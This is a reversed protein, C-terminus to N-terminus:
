WHGTFVFPSWFYPHANDKLLETQAIKLAKAPNEGKLFESYFRRMLDLTSKDNVTWLSMVLASAGASLFGRTLGFLEEGSVIKNLGTECASLVVLKDRLNLERADKVTLNENFLNLASFDPNDLRFKGHCALHLVGAKELNKRLNELTAAENKLKVSDNFLGGLMEIEADILPANQDAVGVLLASEPPSIKRSLCSELVSLSPAYVIECEEILFKEGDHLVQFPLYHLFRTPVIVLRKARCFKELPRILADYIIQSHRLLRETALRQNEASLKELFRGTKIQFLFQEIELRLTKLDVPFRFVEFDDGTIVFASLRDDFDAFEIVTTDPLINQLTKLDFNRIEGVASADENIRGRRELEALKQERTAAMKRLESVDRRAELGSATRRNIRSYFWNLEERLKATEPNQASNKATGNMADLLSRSRSREHWSLAESLNNEALRIKILENFPFLKDSFFATRFEEASLASRSNEVLKVAELFFKEDGSIKGLGVLCLYEIQRSQGAAAELSRRFIEEAKESKGRKLWIEGLLWRALLEHRKNGGEIFAQLASEAENEAKALDNNRFYFQAKSLRAVAASILNGEAEFLKEARDLLNAALAADELLFLAKAHSLLSRALEARMGLEAFKAETKEYFAVSEPLLNLELYIDAIELECNASQHPMKLLDYKQRSREMFKLALDLRGQFLYLNSMGTEIEAETVTLDNEAARNLAIEYVTEAERFNNQLAQVFAQCNEVMALQRQDGIQEFHRHASALYPESERYFDRRWYLNGINHEIKGVSYLDNEKRFVDRARLGCAVAEDYRGLLALAYLKSIQTTAASHTKESDKFSKESKDLWVLCDKLRGNVLNEIARTWQLYATIEPNGTLDSLERLIEVIISVKQPENTWIEYCIQQFCEALEVGALQSHEAFLHAREDSTSEILKRALEQQNM